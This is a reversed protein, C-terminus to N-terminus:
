IGSRKLSIDHALNAAEDIRKPLEDITQGVRM